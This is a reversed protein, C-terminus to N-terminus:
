RRNAAPGQGEGRQLGRQHGRQAAYLAQKQAPTTQKARKGQANRGKGPAARRGLRRSKEQRTRLRKILDRHRRSLLNVFEDDSLMARFAAVRITKLDEGVIRSGKQYNARANTKRRAQGQYRTLRSLSVTIPHSCLAFSRGTPSGDVFTKNTIEIADPNSFNGLASTIPVCVVTGDRQKTKPSLVVVPRTKEMEPRAFGLADFDLWLVTGADVPAYVM